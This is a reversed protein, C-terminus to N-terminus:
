FRLGKFASGQSNQSGPSAERTADGSGRGHKVPSTCSGQSRTSKGDDLDYDVLLLDFSGSGLARHADALSPAVTVSHQSLFQSTVNAAFVAHNEVYLIKM